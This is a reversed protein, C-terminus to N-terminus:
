AILRHILFIQWSVVSVFAALIFYIISGVTIRISNMFYNRSILLVVLGVSTLAYKVFLFTYPGAELFYAMIPNVEDAGHNILVITLLADMVSLLLILVIVGFHFQHYRDFYFCKQRDEYRRMKERRGGFFLSRMSFKRGTRRDTRSRREVAIGDQNNRRSNIIDKNM